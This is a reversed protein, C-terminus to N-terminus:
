HLEQDTRDQHWALSWNTTATKDFLIVRVPFCERRMLTQAISGIAGPAGIMPSLATVGHVRVGAQDPPLEAIAAGIDDIVGLASAPFLQAGDREM